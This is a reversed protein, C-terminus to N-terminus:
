PKAYSYTLKGTTRDICAARVHGSYVPLLSKVAQECADPTPYETTVTPQGLLTLTFYLITATM